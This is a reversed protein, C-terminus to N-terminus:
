GPPGPLGSTGRLALRPVAEVGAAPCVPLDYGSRPAPGPKGTKADVVVVEDGRRAVLDPKGALVASRGRLNFSNQGETSVTYGRSGVAPAAREVAGHPERAM